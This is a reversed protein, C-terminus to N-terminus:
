QISFVSAAFANPKVINRQVGVSAVKDLSGEAHHMCACCETSVIILALKRASNFFSCASCLVATMVDSGCGAMGVYSTMCAATSNPRGAPDYVLTQRAM